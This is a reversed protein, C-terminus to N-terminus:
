EGISHYQAVALEVPVYDSINTVSIRLTGVFMDYSDVGDPYHAEVIKLFTDLSEKDRVLLGCEPDSPDFDVICPEVETSISSEPRIGLMDKTRPNMLVYLINTM